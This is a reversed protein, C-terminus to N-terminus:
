ENCEFGITDVVNRCRYREVPRDAYSHRLKVNSIEVQECPAAGSCQLDAVLESRTTGTMDGWYLDSIHFTSTDCDGTAGSFSICQTIHFVGHTDVM